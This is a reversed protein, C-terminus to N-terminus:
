LRDHVHQTGVVWVVSDYTKSSLCEDVTIYLWLSVCVRVISVCVCLCMCVHNSVWEWYDSELTRMRTHIIRRTLLCSDALRIPILLLRQHIIFVATHVSFFYFFFCLISFHFLWFVCLWHIVFLRHIYILTRPRGDQWKKKKEERSKKIEHDYIRSSVCAVCVSVCMHWLLSSLLFFICFFSFVKKFNFFNKLEQSAKQDHPKNSVSDTALLNM